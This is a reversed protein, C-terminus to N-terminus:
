VVVEEEALYIEDIEIKPMIRESVLRSIFMQLITELKNKANVQAWNAIDM